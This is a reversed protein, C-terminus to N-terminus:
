QEKAKNTSVPDRTPYWWTTRAKRSTSICVLSVEFECLDVQRQRGTSSPNFDWAVMGLM